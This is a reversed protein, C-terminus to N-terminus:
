LSGLAYLITSFEAAWVAVLGGVIVLLLVKKAPSWLTITKRINLAIPAAFLALFPMLPFHFRSGGFFIFHTTIWCAFLCVVLWWLTDMQENLLGVIGLLLLTIYPLNVLVILPLPISAYKVAYRESVDEPDPHFSWVLLGGESSFLHAIKKFGNLVFRDPHEVIYKLAYQYAMEDAAVESQADKLAEEPFSSNYAGTANPNNGILLNIGGNTALTAKGLSLYNRVVWPGIVLLTGLVVFKYRRLPTGILPMVLSIAIIFLFMAPKMLTLVGLLCGVLTASLGRHLAGRELVFIAAVLLFTFVSESLLFNVYLVAPLYFLWASFAFLQAKPSTDRVLFFLLLATICDIVAQLLRVAIPHEGIVAYVGAILLPYAIPRYATPINDYGYTGTNLLAVALQHYDREDSILPRQHVLVFSVRVLLGLILIVLATRPLQKLNSFAM